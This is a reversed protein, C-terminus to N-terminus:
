GLNGGSTERLLAERIKLIHRRVGDLELALRECGAPTPSQSLGIMQALVSDAIEPIPQLLDRSSSLYVSRRAAEEAPTM